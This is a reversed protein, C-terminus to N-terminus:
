RKSEKEKLKNGAFHQEEIDHNVIKKKRKKRM